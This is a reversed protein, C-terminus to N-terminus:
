QLFWDLASRATDDPVVHGGRFEKYILDYGRTELRAQLLRSTRDIPLVRDDIGHSVFIRPAGVPRDSAFFGPSFAIVHTFLDGNTLGVSLAYSAGDSFGEIGIHAIDVAYRDFVLSLARDIFTVDPGHSGVIVDWTRGRSDPALLLLGAGDALALFPDIAGRADGGAGHLMLVLPAPTGPHYGSPVYLLGDRGVELRLPHLGPAEPSLVPAHPRSGVRGASPDAPATSPISEELHSRNSQGYNFPEM